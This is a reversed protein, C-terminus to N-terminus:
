EGGGVSAALADVARKVAAGDEVVITVGDAGPNRETRLGRDDASAAATKANATVALRAGDPQVAVSAVTAGAATVDYAHAGGPRPEVDPDANTVAVGQLPGDSRGDLESALLQAIRRGDTIRDEVVTM